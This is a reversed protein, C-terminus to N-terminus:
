LHLDIDVDGDYSSSRAAMTAEPGVNRAVNQPQGTQFRSPYRLPVGSLVRNPYVFNENTSRFRAGYDSANTTHNSSHAHIFPADNHTGLRHNNNAMFQQSRKARQREKKHANQHGGLAQSNIFERNCYQCEFKKNEVENQGSIPRDPCGTVPFGFLRMTTTSSLSDHGINNGNKDLPPSTSSSENSNEAM